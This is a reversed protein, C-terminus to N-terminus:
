SAPPPELIARPAGVAAWAAEVAHPLTPAGLKAYIHQLHKDITRRSVSLETAAEAPTHGCAVVRLTEAERRTLGLAWLAETTLEDTGAEVLLVRRPDDRRNPLMRVVLRGREGPLVLPRAVSDSAPAALWDRLKPQRRLSDSGGLLRLAGDTAFEIGDQSDLVVIHRGITDLGHELAALLQTRAGHLEANRYARMIHPRALALLGVEHASFDHHERNFALGIILPPVSPLTFAVQFECRILRFFEKYLDLQHFTEQDVFDSIRRPRGDRTGSYHAILPHQYAYTAFVSDLAPDVLPVTVAYFRDPSIENYGAHDCPVLRSLLELVNLRFDDLSELGYAEGVVELLL